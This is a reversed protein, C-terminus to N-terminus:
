RGALRRGSGICQCVGHPLSWPHHGTQYRAFVNHVLPTSFLFLLVPFSDHKNFARTVRGRTRCGQDHQAEDGSQTLGVQPDPHPGRWKGLASLYVFSALVSHPLLLSLLSPVSTHGSGHRARYSCFLFPLYCPCVSKESREGDEEEEEEQINKTKDGEGPFDGPTAYDKAQLSGFSM